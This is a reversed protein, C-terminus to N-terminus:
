SPTVHGDIKINQRRNDLPNKNEYRVFGERVGLLYHALLLGDTNVVYPQGSPRRKKLWVHGGDVVQDLDGGDILCEGVVRGYRDKLIMLIGAEVTKYANPESKVNFIELNSGRNDLFDGNIHRIPAHPSCGLIASALPTRIARGAEFEKSEIVQCDFDTHWVARWNKFANVKNLDTADFLAVVPKGKKTYATLKGIQGEIEIHHPQHQNKRKM